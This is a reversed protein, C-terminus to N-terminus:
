AFDFKLRRNAPFLQSWTAGGNFSLASLAYCPSDEPWGYELSTWYASYFGAGMVVWYVTNESLSLGAHTFTWPTTSFLAPPTLTAVLALPTSVSPDAPDPTDSSYILCFAADESNELTGDPNFPPNFDVAYITVSNLTIASAGVVIGGAVLIPGEFIYINSETPTVSGFCDDPTRCCPSCGFGGKM